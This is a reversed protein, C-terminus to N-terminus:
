VQEHEDEKLFTWTHWSKWYSLKGQDKLRHLIRRTMAMDKERTAEDVIGSSGFIRNAVRTPFSGVREEYLCDYAKKLLEDTIKAM